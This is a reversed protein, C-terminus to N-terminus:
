SLAAEIKGALRRTGATLESERQFHCEDSIILRPNQQLPQRGMDIPVMLAIPKGNRCIQIRGKESEVKKLLYDLRTKAEHINLQIM